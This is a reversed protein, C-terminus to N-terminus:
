PRLRARGTGIWITNDWECYISRVADARRGAPSGHRYERITGNQDLRYLGGRTGTWINGLPDKAIAFVSNAIDGQIGPRNQYFTFKRNTLNLKNIGNLTGVWLNGFADFSLSSVRDNSLSTSQVPNARLHLQEGTHPNWRVLGEEHFGIWLNGEPDSVISSVENLAPGELEIQSFALMNGSESRSAFLGDGHTGVYLVGEPSEYLARIHDASNGGKTTLKNAVFSAAATDYRYLGTTTGVWLTGRSDEYICNVRKGSYDPGGNFYSVFREGEM